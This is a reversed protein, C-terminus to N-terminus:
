NLSLFTQLSKYIRSLCIPELCVITSQLWFFKAKANIWKLLLQLLKGRAKASKKADVVLILIISFAVLTQLNPFPNSTGLRRMKRIDRITTTQLHWIEIRFPCLSFWLTVWHGNCFNRLKRKRIFGWNWSVNQVSEVLYQMNKESLM